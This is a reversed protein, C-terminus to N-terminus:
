FFYRVVFRLQHGVPLSGFQSHRSGLFADHAIAVRLDGWARSVEGSALTSGDELNLVGFAVLRAKLPLPVEALRIFLFHRGQVSDQHRVAGGLALAGRLTPDSGAADLLQFYRRFESRSYGEGNYYYEAVVNIGNGFTYHGGVLIRPVLDADDRPVFRFLAARPNGTPVPVTTDSGRQLSAEAHLELAPGIVTAWAAGGKWRTGRYLYLSLDHGRVLTYAKVLLQDVENIRASDLDHLEPAYLASVTVPGLEALGRVMYQGSRHEKRQAPDPDTGTLDTPVRLFDVPNFAYGVGEPLNRKGIEALTGAGLRLRVYAEEVTNEFEDAPGGEAVYFARDRLVVDLREGFSGKLELDGVVRNSLDTFELIRNRPNLPSASRIARYTLEESLRARYQYSFAPQAGVDVSWM